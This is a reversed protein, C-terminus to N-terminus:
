KQAHQELVDVFDETMVQSKLIVHNAGLKIAGNVIEDSALGTVVVIPVTKNFRRMEQVTNAGYADPLNLDLLVLDFNNQKYEEYAEGLSQVPIITADPWLNQISKKTLVVDPADDEVLLITKSEAM